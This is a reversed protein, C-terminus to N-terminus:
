NTRGDKRTVKKGEENIEEGQEREDGRWKERKHDKKREGM